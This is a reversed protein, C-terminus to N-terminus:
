ETSALATHDRAYPDASLALHGGDVHATLYTVYVPVPQPLEIKQEPAKSVAEIDGQMLWSGLRKADELRICGASLQRDDKNLLDKEPTDHLYIGYPNPFEFKITGMSNAPGPRQRVHVMKDGRRVAAWDVQLPDLLETADWDALVEYGQRKLYSMGQSLVNRAILSSVFDSPVNWYPNLFANRIYGAYAPTQKGKEPKGVIVKMSDVVKDGDYMWLTADASDIIIHRGQPQAPIQRIRDLNTLVLQRDQPSLGQATMLAHRLPAYLPHMWRMEHIYEALSPAKAAEALTYYAGLNRPALQVSEYKMAAGSEGRLAAVYAAFTQSLLVEANALATPTRDAQAQAVAAALEHAHLAAPDLGDEDATEILQVLEDAAPDLGGDADIWLPRSGYAYFSAIQGSSRAVLEAKFDPALTQSGVAQAYAPQAFVFSLALCPLAFRTRRIARALSM